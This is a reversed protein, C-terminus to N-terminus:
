KFLTQYENKCGALEEDCAKNEQQLAAYENELKICEIQQQKTDSIIKSLGATSRLLKSSTNETCTSEM